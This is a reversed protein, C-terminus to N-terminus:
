SAGGAGVKGAKVLCSPCLAAGYILALPPLRMKRKPPLQRPTLRTVKADRVGCGDCRGTM